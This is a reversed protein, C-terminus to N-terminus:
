FSKVPNQRHATSSHRASLFVMLAAIAVTDINGAVLGVRLVATLADHLAILTILADLSLADALLTRSVTDDKNM